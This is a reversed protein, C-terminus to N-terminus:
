PLLYMLRRLVPITEGKLTLGAELQGRCHMVVMESTGSTSVCLFNMHDLCSHFTKGGLGAPILARLHGLRHYCLAVACASLQMVATISLRQHLFGLGARQVLMSAALVTERWWQLTDRVSASTAILGM